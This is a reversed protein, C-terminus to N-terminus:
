DISAFENTNFLVLAVEALGRLEPTVDAPGLDPVFDASAFLEEEFRFPQGTVEEVAEREVRSPRAARRPEIARHRGAMEQAHRACAELEAESPARGLALLFMRDIAGAPDGAEGSARAALALARARVSRGNLLALAQPAVTSVERAECSLDAGPANLVELLPDRLGRLRLAYLTRRNRQGPRPSPEWAPAFTGMVQRPQLAVDEHIEPRVPIGGIAPNLEGSAALMADRMEEAALRRPRFAAYSTGEPDKEALGALDPHRSSRRYAASMLIQRQLRKVSWGWEVLDSALWDLLGPHTPKKGTAGLNNPNGALPIGMTWQWVRNAM